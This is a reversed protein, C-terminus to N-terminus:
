ASSAPDFRRQADDPSTGLAGAIRAWDTGKDRLRRVWRALEAEARAASRALGPLLDLIDQVPRDLAQARLRTRDEPTIDATDAVITASLDVCENCIFVGPGAVLTKVETNAKGCFSCTAIVADAAPPEAAPPTALM